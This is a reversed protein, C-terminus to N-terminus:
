SRRRSRTRGPPSGPTEVTASESVEEPQERGLLDSAEVDLQWQESKLRLSHAEGLRAGEIINQLVAPRSWKYVDAHGGFSTWESHEQSVSIAKVVYLRALPEVSAAQLENSTITISPISLTTGKVEIHLERSGKTVRLDYGPHPQGLVEMAQQPTSVDECIWDRYDSRCLEVAHQEIADKALEDLQRQSTISWVRMQGAAIQLSGNLASPLESDYSKYHVVNRPFDPLVMDVTPVSPLPLLFVNRLVVCGIVTSTGQMLNTMGGSNTSSGEATTTLQEVFEELSQVGNRTGWRAWAQSVTMQEYRDIIGYGPVQRPNKGKQVFVFPKGYHKEAVPMKGPRWFNVEGSYGSERLRSIWLPQTVGALFTVVIVESDWLPVM